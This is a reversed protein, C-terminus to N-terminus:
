FTLKSWPFEKSCVISPKCMSKGLFNLKIRQDQPQMNEPRESDSLGYRTIYSQFSQPELIMKKSKIKQVNRTLQIIM